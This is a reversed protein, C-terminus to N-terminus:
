ANLVIYFLEENSLNSLIKRVAALPLQVWKLIEFLIDEAKDFLGRRVNCVRFRHQLMSGYISFEGLIDNSLLLAEIVEKRKTFVAIRDCDRSLFDYYSLEVLKKSKMLEIEKECQDIFSYIPLYYKLIEADNNMMKLLLKVTKLNSFTIFSNATILKSAHRLLVVAGIKLDLLDFSCDFEADYHRENNSAEDGNSVNDRNVYEDICDHILELPTKGNSDKANIDLHMDLLAQIVPANGVKAAYHLATSGREDCVPNDYDYCSELVDRIFTVIDGADDAFFSRHLNMVNVNILDMSHESLLIKFLKFNHSGASVDRAEKEPYLDRIKTIIRFIETETANLPQSHLLLSRYWRDVSELFERKFGVLSSAIEELGLLISVWVMTANTEDTEKVSFGHEVMLKVIKENDSFSSSLLSIYFKDRVISANLDPRRQLLLEVMAPSGTDIASSLPTNGQNDELEIDAGANLLVATVEKDRMRIAMHLATGGDEIRQNVDVKCLSLLLPIASPDPRFPGEDRDEQEDM